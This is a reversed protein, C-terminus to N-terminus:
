GAERLAPLRAESGVGRHSYSHACTRTCGSRAPALTSRRRAPRRRKARLAHLLAADRPQRHAFHLAGPSGTEEGSFTVFWVDGQTQIKAEQMARLVTFLQVVGPIDDGAAPCYVRGDRVFANAPQEKPWIPVNDHHANLVVKPGKGVGPRIAIVNNLDDIYVQELGYIRFMKYIQRARFIEDHSPGLANCVGLWDQIVDAPEAIQKEVFELASKMQPTALYRKVAAVEKGLEPTTNQALAPVTGALSVFTFAVALATRATSFKLM